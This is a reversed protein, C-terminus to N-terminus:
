QLAVGRQLRVVCMHRLYALVARHKCKTAPLGCGFIVRNLTCVQHQCVLLSACVPPVGPSGGVLAGNRLEM